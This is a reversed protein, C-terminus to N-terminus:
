GANNSELNLAEIMSTYGACVRTFPLNCVESILDRKIKGIEEETYFRGGNALLGNAELHSLVANIGNRRRSGFAEDDHANNFVGILKGVLEERSPQEAPQPKRDKQGFHYARM